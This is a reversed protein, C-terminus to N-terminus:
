GLKETTVGIAQEGMERYLLGTLEAAPLARALPAGQGAWHAGFGSEGKAKAAAHLSKGAHYARPYDPVRDPLELQTFRNRLSRAPRGSIAKTMVTEGPGELLARQHGPDAASEPCALYATGLQASVAGLALVASIARGDMLGGAAIVPLDIRAVLLRTLVSTSLKQDSLEPEFVGRHGGAEYGQAIVADMGARRAREGESLSTVSAILLSGAQRFAQVVHPEPLGFHFSVVSPRARAVVEVLEPQESLSAYPSSLQELPTAQFQTFTPGLRSLWEREVEPLIRAPKHCFLNVNFRFDGQLSRTTAIIREAEAPSLHGVAIGGLGGNRSVAAVMEPTSVGAMPAQLLKPFLSM